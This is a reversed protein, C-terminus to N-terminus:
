YFEMVETEMEVEVSFEMVETELEVVVEVSFEMVGTGMEVVVKVEVSFEMVEMVVVVDVEVACTLTVSPRQCLTTTSRLFRSPEIWTSPSIGTRVVASGPAVM